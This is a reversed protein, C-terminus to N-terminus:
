TESKVGTSGDIQLDNHFFIVGDRDEVEVEVELEGNVDINIVRHEECKM